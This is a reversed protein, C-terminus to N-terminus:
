ILCFAGQEARWHWGHRRPTRVKAQCFTQNTSLGVKASLDKSKLLGVSHTNQTTEHVKRTLNVGVFIFILRRLGHRFWGVVDFWHWPGEERGQM